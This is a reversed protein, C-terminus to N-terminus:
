NFSKVPFIAQGGDFLPGSKGILFFKDKYYVRVSTEDQQPYDKCDTSRAFTGNCLREYGEDNVDVRHYDMFVSYTPLIFDKLTANNSLEQIKELTLGCDYSGSKSRRLSTMTAINGLKKGIDYCLTRIYTGKSCLVRIKYENEELEENEFIEIEFIEIERSKREIEVGKRAMDVLKQGNIKIASYMPPIQEIKGVFSNIADHVLQKEINVDQTNIVEGWIDQTTTDIGLKFTAIYEKHTAGHYDVARTAPGIFVPLIGTAMPDLTGSHGIKKTKLIGRLKAIVDHSTFDQPKDVLLIGNYTFLSKSAEDVILKCVKDLTSEKFTAGAARAHGGGGFVACVDSANVQGNTRLSAKIDGNNLETLCVAVEVGEISRPISTISDLDDATAKTQERDKKTIKIVAIQNGVFFKMNEYVRKEMMIRAKSRTEFLKRNIVSIDDIHKLCQGALTHTNTTTNSFSFCGTDTAISTYLATALEKDLNVKLATAINYIIEGCAGFDLIVNHKAFGKNSLYHHDICLDIKDAYMMANETLLETSAIDTTIIFKPEYDSPAIYDKILHEFKPTIDPNELIYATRGLKRLVQCLASASGTTDGDPKKHTIILFKDHNLLLAGIKNM